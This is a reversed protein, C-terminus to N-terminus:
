YYNVNSGLKLIEWKEGLNDILLVDMDNVLPSEFSLVGVLDCSTIQVKIHASIGIRDPPTM